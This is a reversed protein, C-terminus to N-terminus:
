NDRKVATCNPRGEKIVTASLSRVNATHEENIASGVDAIRAV